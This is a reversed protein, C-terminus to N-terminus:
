PNAGLSESMFPKMRASPFWMPLSQFVQAVSTTNSQLCIRTKCTARIRSSTCDQLFMPVHLSLSCANLSVEWTWGPLFLRCSLPLQAHLESDPAELGSNKQHHSDFSHSISTWMKSSSIFPSVQQCRTFSRCIDQLNPSRGASRKKPSRLLSSPAQPSSIKFNWTNPLHQYTEWKM